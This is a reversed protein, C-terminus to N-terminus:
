VYSATEKWGSILWRLKVDLIPNTQRDHKPLTPSRILLQSRSMVICLRMLMRPEQNCCIRPPKAFRRMIRPQCRCITFAGISIVPNPPIFPSVFAFFHSSPLSLFLSIFLFAHTPENTTSRRDTPNHQIIERFSLNDRMANRLAKDDSHM